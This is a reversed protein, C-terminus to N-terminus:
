ILVTFMDESFTKGSCSSISENWEGSIQCKIVKVNYGDYFRLGTDCVLIIETGISNNNNSMTTNAQTLNPCRIESIFM